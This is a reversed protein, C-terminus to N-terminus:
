LLHNLDVSNTAVAVNSSLKWLRFKRKNIIWNEFQELTLEVVGYLRYKEAYWYGDQDIYGDRVWGSFDKSMRWKYVSLPLCNFDHVKVKICWKKPLSDLTDISKLKDM